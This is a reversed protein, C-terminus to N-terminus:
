HGFFEVIPGEDPHAAKFYAIAAPNVYVREGETNELAVATGHGALLQEHVLEPEDAVEVPKGNAFTIRTPM